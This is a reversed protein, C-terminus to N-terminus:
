CVCVNGGGAFSGRSNRGLKARLPCEMGQMNIVENVWRRTCGCQMWCDTGKLGPGGGGSAVLLKYDAPWYNDLPLPWKKVAARFAQHSVLMYAKKKKKKCSLVKIVQTSASLHDSLPVALCWKAAAELPGSAEMGRRQWFAGAGDDRM